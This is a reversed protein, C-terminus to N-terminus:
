AVKVISINFENELKEKIESVNKAETNRVKYFYHVPFKEYIILCLLALILAGTLNSIDLTVKQSDM